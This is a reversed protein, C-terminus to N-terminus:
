AADNQKGALENLQAQALNGDSVIAYLDDRLRQAVQVAQWIRERADTDRASTSEWFAMCDRKYGEFMEVMLPHDLLARAENGRKIAAATKDDHM